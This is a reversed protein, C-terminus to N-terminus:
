LDDKIKSLTNRNTKGYSQFKPKVISNFREPLRVRLSEM